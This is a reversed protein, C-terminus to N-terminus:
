FRAKQWLKGGEYTDDEEEEDQEIIKDTVLLKEKLFQTYRKKHYPRSM